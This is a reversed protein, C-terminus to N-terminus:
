ENKRGIGSRNFTEIIDKELEKFTIDKKNSKWLIIINNGLSINNENLRYCERVLRKIRNREVSNGTKRSVAIGLNNLESNNKLFYIVVYKGKVWKGKTFVKKFEFNKKLSETNKM